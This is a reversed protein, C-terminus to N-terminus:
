SRRRARLAFQRAPDAGRDSAASGNGPRAFAPSSGANANRSWGTMSRSANSRRTSAATPRASCAAGLDAIARQRAPRRAPQDVAHHRRWALPRHRPRDGPRPRLRRRGPQASRRAAPVAPVRGRATRAPHGARRRRRLHHRIRQERTARSRSHTQGHRQPTPSSIASAASSRWRGSRSTSTARPRSRRSARRPARRRRAPRRAHARLDTPATAEGADGRAFALYAELMRQMEDVDKQMAEVEASEDVSPSRCSSAPSSPACTTASATSCPPASSAHRARHAAEDRSPTAAGPAGRARRASPLRRRPGQRLGGGRRRAAPDAPDPQAPLPDRGHAAGALRRGDLRHLYPRQLAYALSRRAVVRLVADGLDVRIKSSTRAASRTSGSRGGSRRRSRAGAPRPDASRPAFFPKRCLRRCRAPRCCDRRRHRFRAAIAHLKATTPAGAAPRRYLDILAGIDRAVADSLRYTVLDGTASWSSM